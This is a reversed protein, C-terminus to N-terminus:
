SSAITVLCIKSVLIIGWQWKGRCGIPCYGQRLSVDFFSKTLRCTINKYIIKIQLQNTNVFFYILAKNYLIKQKKDV